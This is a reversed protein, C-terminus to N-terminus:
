ITITYYERIMGSCTFITPLIEIIGVSTARICAERVFFCFLVLFLDSIVVM